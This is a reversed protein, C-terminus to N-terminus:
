ALPSEKAQTMGMGTGQEERCLLCNQNKKRLMEGLRRLYRGSGLHYSVPLLWSDGHIEDRTQLIM